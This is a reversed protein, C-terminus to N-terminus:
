SARLRPAITDSPTRTSITRAQRHAGRYAEDTACTSGNVDLTEPVVTTFPFTSGSRAGLLV